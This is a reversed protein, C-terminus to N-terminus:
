TRLFSRGPMSGFCRGGNRVLNSNDMSSSRHTLGQSSRIFSGIQTIGAAANSIALVPVGAQQAIPDVSLATDSLTPGIIALVHSNEIFRQFAASAQDRNSGDDEVIVQLRTSGLMQSANIEDQALQIGSRQASGFMKGTGTLSLAAGIRAIHGSAAGNGQTGTKRYRPAPVTPRPTAATTGDPTPAAEPRSPVCGAAIVALALVLTLARRIEM